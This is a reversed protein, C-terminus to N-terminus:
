CRELREERPLYCWQGHHQKLWLSQIDDKVGENGTAEIDWIMM